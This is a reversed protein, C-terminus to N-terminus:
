SYVSKPKVKLKSFAHHYDQTSNNQCKMYEFKLM